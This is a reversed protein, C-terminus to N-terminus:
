PKVRLAKMQPVAAVNTVMRRGCATGVVVQELGGEAQATLSQM